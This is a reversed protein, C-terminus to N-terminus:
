DSMKITLLSKLHWGNSETALFIKPKLQEPVAIEGSKLGIKIFKLWQVKHLYEKNSLM